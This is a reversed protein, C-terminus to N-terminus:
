AGRADRPSANAGRRDRPARANSDHWQRTWRRLQRSGLSEPRRFDALGAADLDVAQLEVLTTVLSRAASARTARCAKPPDVHTLVVGDVHEMVYFPAGTVEADECFALM